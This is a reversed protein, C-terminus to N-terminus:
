LSEGGLTEPPYWSKHYDARNKMGIQFALGCGAADCHYAITGLTICLPLVTPSRTQIYVVVSLITLLCSLAAIWQMAKKM